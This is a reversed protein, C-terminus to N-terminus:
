SHLRDVWGIYAPHKGLLLKSASSLTKCVSEPLGGVHRHTAGKWSRDTFATRTHDPISSDFRYQRM